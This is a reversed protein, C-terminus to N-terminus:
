LFRYEPYDWKRDKIDKLGLIKESEQNKIAVYQYEEEDSDFDLDPDSPQQSSHSRAVTEFLSIVASLEDAPIKKDIIFHATERLMKALDELTSRRPASFKNRFFEKEIEDILDFFEEGEEDQENLLALILPNGLYKQKDSLSKYLQNGYRSTRSLNMRDQPTLYQSYMVNLEPPLNSTYGGSQTLTSTIFGM